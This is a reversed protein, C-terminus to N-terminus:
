RIRMGDPNFTLEVERWQDRKEAPLPVGDALGRLVARRAAQYAAERAAETGGSAAVLRVSNGLVRGQEDLEFGVTVTAQAAQSGPDVVWSRSVASGLADREAGTLPPGQPEVPEPEAVPEPDRLADELAAQLAGQDIPVDPAPEPQPEPVPEAIEPAPRPAPRISTAPPGPAPPAPEPPPPAEPTAESALTTGAEEPASAPEDPVAPAESPEPAAEERLVEAPRAEPPPAPAPAPAVREAPLPEAAPPPAPPEESPAPEPPAEAPPPPAPEVAAVPEPEPASPADLEGAPIMTVSITSPPDPARDPFALGGIAAWGIVIAHVGASAALAPDVRGLSWAGAAAGGALHGPGLRGRGARDRLQSLGAAMRGGAAAGAWGAAGRVGHGAARGGRAALGHLRGVVSALDARAAEDPAAAGRGFRTFREVEAGPEPTRGASRLRSLLGRPDENRTM